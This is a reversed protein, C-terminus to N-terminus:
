QLNRLYESKQKLILKTFRALTIWDGCAVYKGSPAYACTMVWCSSLPIAMNKNTSFANWILLKGDQSASVLHHPDSQSWQVAYIKGFHGKLNRRLKAQLRTVPIASSEALVKLADEGTRLDAIDKKLQEIDSQMQKYDGM